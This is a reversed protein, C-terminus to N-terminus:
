KNEGQGILKPLARAQNVWYTTEVLTPNRRMVRQRENVEILRERLRVPDYKAVKEVSDVGAEYLLRVRVGKIDVIRTLDALKVMGSIDDAPVGSRRSLGARGEGTRGAELLEMVNDIGIRSLKEIHELDVGQIDKLRLPKRGARGHSIEQQRMQAALRRMPENASYEYYRHIAWLHANVPKQKEKMWSVFSALDERAAEDLLKTDLHQQLYAEFERVLQMCREVAVPSRGHEKLFVRFGEKNSM